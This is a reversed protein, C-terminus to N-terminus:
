GKCVLRCVPKHAVQMPKYHAKPQYYHANVRASRQWGNARAYHQHAVPRPAYYPRYNPRSYWTIRIKNGGQCRSSPCGGGSNVRSWYANPTEYNRQSYHKVYNVVPRQWQKAPMYPRHQVVPRHVVPRYVPHYQVAPRHVVPHYVPRHQVMPRPAVYRQSYGYNVYRNPQYHLGVRGHQVAVSVGPQHYRGGGFGIYTRGRQIGFGQNGIYVQTGTHRGGTHYGRSSYNYNGGNFNHGVGQHARGGSYNSWGGNHRHGTQWGGNHGGGSHSNGGQWGGSHSNGGQWSGSHGGGSHRSSGHWGGGSHGGGFGHSGGAYYNAGGSFSHHGGHGGGGFHGGSSMNPGGNPMSNAMDGGSWAQSPAIAAVGLGLSAILKKM